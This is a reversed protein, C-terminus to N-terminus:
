VSEEKDFPSGGSIPSAYRAKHPERKRRQISKPFYYVLTGGWISLGSVVYWSLSYNFPWILSNNESWAFLFSGIAPATLRGIAAFTQGIGNVTARQHSYCSNSIFTFISIYIWMQVTSMLALGIILLADSLTRYQSVWSVCPMLAATVGFIQCAMSYTKMLGVKKVLSPYFLIQGVISIPGSVTMAWGIDHAKYDFGGDALSTVVWLPFIEVMMVGFFGALGYMFTSLFIQKRTLLYCILSWLGGTHAPATAGGGFEDFFESGNTFRLQSKPAHLTPGFHPHVFGVTSDNTDPSHADPASDTNDPSRTRIPTMEMTVCDREQISPGWMPATVDRFDENEKDEAENARSRATCIFPSVEVPIDEDNVRKLPGFAMSDSGITKVMVINAFGVSRKPTNTSKGNKSSSQPRNSSPTRLAAPSLSSSSAQGPPNGAATLQLTKNPTVSENIPVDELVDAPEEMREANNEGEVGVDVMLDTGAAVGDSAKWVSARDNALRAPASSVATMEVIAGQGQGQGQGQEQGEGQWKGNMSEDDMQDMDSTGLPSYIASMKVASVAFAPKNAEPDVWFWSGPLTEPLYKMSLLSTVFCAASIFIVPLSFPYDDVITDRFYEMSKGPFMLYGGIIPGITRGVGGITGYLAMGKAMNSDDLIEAVYTKSVGINGNLLGWLFRAFVVVWFNHSFAFILSALVSGWLGLILAPKRGIRDSALGWIFNGFLSGTSFASGLLGARYGLEKAGLLPYYYSVMFPLMTFIMWISTNNSSLIMGLLVIKLTPVPSEMGQAPQVNVESM